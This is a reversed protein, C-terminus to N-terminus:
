KVFEETWEPHPPENGAELEAKWEEDTWRRIGGGAVFEHYSLVPGTLFIRRFAHCIKWEPSM